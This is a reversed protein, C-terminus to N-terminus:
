HGLDQPDQQDNLALIGSIPSGLFQFRIAVRYSFDQVKTKSSYAICWKDAYIWMAQSLFYAGHAPKRLKTQKWM